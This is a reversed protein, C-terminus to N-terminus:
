GLRCYFYGNGKNKLTETRPSSSNRGTRLFCPSAMSSQTITLRELGSGDTHIMYMEFNHGFRKLDDRWDDMNSSFIIRKGDPHWSPAFNTAKNHLIRRKDSGDANMIWLDLPVPVIYNNEMCDQWLAKEEETESVM